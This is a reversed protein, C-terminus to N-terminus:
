HALSSLLNGLDNEGDEIQLLIETEFVDEWYPQMLPIWKEEFMKQLAPHAHVTERHFEWERLEEIRAAEEENHYECDKVKSFIKECVPIPGEIETSILKKSTSNFTLYLVNFYYSGMTSGIFPIGDFYHHVLNHRHGSVVGDITGAPLARLLQMLEDDQVCEEQETQSTRIAYTRNQPCYNGVHSLLLVADCKEHERLEESQKIVTRKYHLFKYKPYYQAIFGSSTEPTELTILGVVGIRVGAVEFVTTSKQKYLFDPEGNESRLNASLSGAERKQLYHDLFPKKQDFEHNGIASANLGVANFFEDMIEAKSISPSAELGGTYDDGANLYLVRGRHQQQIISILTAMYVLGGYNYTLNLLSITKPFAYGHIDNTGIVAIQLEDKGPLSLMSGCYALIVLM